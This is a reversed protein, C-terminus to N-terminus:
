LNVPEATLNKKDGKSKGRGTYDVILRANKYDSYFNPRSFEFPHMLADIKDKLLQDLMKFVQGINGTSTKSVNNAVRRQPISLKFVALLSEIVTFEPEGVFYKELESKIPMALQHLLSGIDYIVSDAVADLESPVYKAKNKLEKNESVAAYAILASSFQRISLILKIRVDNKSEILGSSDAEQVLRNDDILLLGAKLNQHAAGLEPLQRFSEANNDLVLDTAGYMRLKNIQNKNMSKFNLKYISFVYYGAKDLRDAALM